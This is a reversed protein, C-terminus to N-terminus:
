ILGRCFGKIVCKFFSFQRMTLPFFLNILKNQFDLVSNWILAATQEFRSNSSGQHREVPGTHCFLIISAEAKYMCHKNQNMACRFSTEVGTQSERKCEGHIPPFSQEQLHRFWLSSLRIKQCDSLITKFYDQFYRVRNSRQIKHLHYRKIHIGKTSHCM